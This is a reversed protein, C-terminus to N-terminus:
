EKSGGKANGAFLKAATLLDAQQSGEVSIIQRSIGKVDATTETLNVAQGMPVNMDIYENLIKKKTSLRKEAAAMKAEAARTEEFAEQAKKSFTLKAVRFAAIKIGYLKEVGSDADFEFLLNIRSVNDKYFRIIDIEDDVLKMEWKGPALKETLEDIKEDIKEDTLKEKLKEKLDELTEDKLILGMVFEPASAPDTKVKNIYYHPPKELLLVCRILFEIETRDEVFVDSNKIGCIKGVESEVAEVMGQEITKETMEIYVNLNAPRYQVSGGITIELKDKSLAVADLEQTVLKKSKINEPLLDDVLPTVFNLGEELILVTNGEKKIRKKFRTPVGFHVTPIVIATNLALVTIIVALALSCFGIWDILAGGLLASLIAIGIIWSSIANSVIKGTKLGEKTKFM